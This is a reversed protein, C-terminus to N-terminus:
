RTAEMGGAHVSLARLINISRRIDPLARHPPGYAKGETTAIELARSMVPSGFLYVMWERIASVDFNRYTWCCSLDPLHHDIWSRDFAVSSGCMPGPDYEDPSAVGSLWGQMWILADGPSMGADWARDLLGGAGLHFDPVKKAIGSSKPRFTPDPKILVSDAALVDLSPPPKTVALAVELLSGDEPVLGTTEVDVWVLRRATGWEPRAGIEM